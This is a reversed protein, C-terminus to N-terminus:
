RGEITADSPSERSFLDGIFIQHDPVKEFQFEGSKFYQTFPQPSISFVIVFFNSFGDLVLELSVQSWSKIPSRVQLYVSIGELLFLASFLRLWHMAFLIVNVIVIVNILTDM